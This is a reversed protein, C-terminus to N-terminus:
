PRGADRNAASLLAHGLLLLGAVVVVLWAALADWFFVLSVTLLSRQGIEAAMAYSAASYMGLPFVFAWWVGAFRLMNPRRSIRHLGFYILPPIWLTAMAWTVVTVIRVPAALWTPALSHINDGALTAIAMGGMLIWTDPEFGDRDQRENVVRWLILWTMLAYIVIAAAWVAVAVALWWREGTQYAARAIVIALGSTGVSGLEWAGHADDRLAVWRRAFMNRASVVLLVLWSCLGVAGLVRLVWVNASLRTDIVACAAVFTFLRLTVDPDSLDWRLTRRRGVATTGVLAILFVLGLSAIVGLADSIWNYNHNRAAISLIGTAMVAAFVDPTPEVGAGRVRM